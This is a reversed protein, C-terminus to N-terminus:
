AQDNVWQNQLKCLQERILLGLPAMSPFNELYKVIGVIHASVLIELVHEGVDIM